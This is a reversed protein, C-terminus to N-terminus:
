KRVVIENEVLGAVIEVRDATRLGVGVLVNRETEGNRVFAYFQGGVERLAQPPLWLVNHRRQIEASVTVAGGVRLKTQEGDAVTIHVLTDGGNGYPFPLQQIIGTLVVGPRYGLSVSVPLTETLLALESDPLTAEVTLSSPDALRLVPDYAKVPLRQLDEVPLIFYVNGAFPAVLRSQDIQKQLRQVKVEAAVLEKQQELAESRDLRKLDLQASTLAQEAKAMEEPPVSGPKDLEKALLSALTLEAIKIAQEALQIAYTREEAAILHNQHVIELDWEAETLQIQLDDIDLEALVADARVLDGNQVHITQVRGDQEFFLEAQRRLNITGPFQVSAVVDGRQVTYTEFGTLLGDGPALPAPTPPLPNGFRCGAVLLLLMIGVVAQSRGKQRLEIVLSVLRSEPRM